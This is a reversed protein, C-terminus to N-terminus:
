SFRLDSANHGQLAQVYENWPNPRHSRGHNQCVDPHNMSPKSPASPKPSSPRHVANWSQDRPVDPGSHDSNEIGHDYQGLPNELKTLLLTLKDQSVLLLVDLGTVGHEQENSEDTGGQHGPVRSEPPL